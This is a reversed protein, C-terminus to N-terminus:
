ILVIKQDLDHNISIIKDEKLNNGKKFKLINKIVGSYNFKSVSKILYTETNNFM